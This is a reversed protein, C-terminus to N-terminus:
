PAAEAAPRMPSPDTAPPPGDSADATSAGSPGADATAGTSEFFDDPFDVKTRPKVPNEVPEGHRLPM